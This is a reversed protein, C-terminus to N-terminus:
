QPRSLNGPAVDTPMVPDVIQVLGWECLNLRESTRVTLREQRASSNM